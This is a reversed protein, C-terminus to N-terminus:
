GSWSGVVRERRVVAQTEPAPPPAPARADAAAARVMSGRPPGVAPAKKAPAKKAPAKKDEARARVRRAIPARLSVSAALQM